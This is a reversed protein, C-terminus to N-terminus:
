NISSDILNTSWAINSVSERVLTAGHAKYPPLLKSLSRPICKNKM